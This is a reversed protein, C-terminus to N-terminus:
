PASSKLYGAIAPLDIAVIAALADRWTISGNLEALITAGDLAIAAAAVAKIKPEITTWSVKTTSM